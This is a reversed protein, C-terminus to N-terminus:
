SGLPSGGLGGLRVEVHEGPAFGNGSFSFSHKAKGTYEAMKITPPLYRLRFTTRASRGSQTGVVRLVHTGPSLGGPVADSVEDFRGDEVIVVPDLTAEPRG